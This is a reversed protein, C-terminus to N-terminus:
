LGTSKNNKQFFLAYGDEFEKEEEKSLGHKKSYQKIFHKNLKLLCKRNVKVTKKVM